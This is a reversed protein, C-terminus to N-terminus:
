DACSVNELRVLVHHAIETLWLFRCDISVIRSPKLINAGRM